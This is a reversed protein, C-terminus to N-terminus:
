QLKRGFRVKPDDKPCIDAVLHTVVDPKELANFDNVQVVNEQWRHTAWKKIDKLPAYATVPVWVLRTVKRLSKSAIETNRFSLPRGDTIVITVSKADKRGLSLESKATM